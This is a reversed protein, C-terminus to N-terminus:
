VIGNTLFNLTKSSFQMLKTTINSIATAGVIGMTSFRYELASVSNSLSTLDINSAAKSVSELGKSAGPLNLKNNLSDITRMSQSVNKEFNQNNFELSVVREDVEKSM